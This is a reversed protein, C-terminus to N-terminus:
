REGQERNRSQSYLLYCLYCLSQHGQGTKLVWSALTLCSNGMNGGELDSSERRDGRENM